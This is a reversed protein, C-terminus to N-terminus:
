KAVRTGGIRKTIGQLDLWELLPIAGRRTLGTLEKFRGPSLEGETELIEIVQTILSELSERSYLHSGVRCIQGEELMLSLLQQREEVNKLM